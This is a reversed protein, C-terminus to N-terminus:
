PTLFFHTMFRFCGRIIYTMFALKQHEPSKAGQFEWRPKSLSGWWNPSTLGIEPGWYNPVKAGGGWVGVGQPQVGYVGNPMLSIFVFPAKNQISLKQEM